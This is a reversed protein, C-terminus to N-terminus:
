KKSWKKIEELYNIDKNKCQRYIAKSLKKNDNLCNKCIYFSRGYQTWFSLKKDKCQLRLLEKQYFKDKCGICMRIPNSM